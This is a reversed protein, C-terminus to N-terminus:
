KDSYNLAQQSRFVLIEKVQFIYKLVVKVVSGPTVV